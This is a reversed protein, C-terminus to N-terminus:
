DFEGIVVARAGVIDVGSRKILELCGSFLFFNIKAFRFHRGVLSKSSSRM